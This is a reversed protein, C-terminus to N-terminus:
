TWTQILSAALIFLVALTTSAVRRRTALDALAAFAIPGLTVTYSLLAAALGMAFWEVFWQPFLLVSAIVLSATFAHRKIAWMLKAIGQVDKRRIIRVAAKVAVAVAVCSAMATPAYPPLGAWVIETSIMGRRALLFTAIALPFAVLFAGAFIMPWNARIKKVDLNLQTYLAELGLLGGMVLCITSAVKWIM